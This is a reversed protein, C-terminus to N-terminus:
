HNVGVRRTPTPHPSPIINNRTSIAEARFRYVTVRSADQEGLRRLAQRFAWNATKAEGPVFAVGGNQGEVFMGESQPDIVSYNSVKQPQGVPFTIQVGAKAIQDATIGRSRRDNKLAMTVNAAIEDALDAKRPTFGGFCAFVRKGIFFTVFCPRQLRQAFEPAAPPKSNNISSALCAKAYSILSASEDRSFGASPAAMATTCAFLLLALVSLLIYRYARIM